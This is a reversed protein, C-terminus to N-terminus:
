DALPRYLRQRNVWAALGFVLISAFVLGLGVQYYGEGPGAAPCSLAPTAPPPQGGPGQSIPPCPVRKTLGLGLGYTVLLLGIVFLTASVAFAAPGGLRARGQRM